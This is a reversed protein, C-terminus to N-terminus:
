LRCMTVCVMSQVTCTRQWTNTQMTNMSSSNSSTIAAFTQSSTPLSQTHTTETSVSTTMTRIAQKGTNTRWVMRRWWTRKNIAITLPTMMRTTPANSIQHILLLLTCMSLTLTAIVIKRRTLTKLTAFRIKILKKALRPWWTATNLWFLPPQPRSVSISTLCIKM